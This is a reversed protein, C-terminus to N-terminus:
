RKDAEQLVVIQAGLAEIVELSRDPRRRLDLGVCKQLNYTAIRLTAPKMMSYRCRDPPFTVRTRRDSMTPWASIPRRPGTPAPHTSGPCSAAPPPPAPSAPATTPAPTRPGTPRSRSGAM